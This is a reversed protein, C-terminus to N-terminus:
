VVKERLKKAIGWRNELNKSSNIYHKCRTRLHPWGHAEQVQTVAVSWGGPKRATASLLLAGFSSSVSSAATIVEIIPTSLSSDPSPINYFTPSAKTPTTNMRLPSAVPKIKATGGQIDLMPTYSINTVIPTQAATTAKVQMGRIMQPRFHRM